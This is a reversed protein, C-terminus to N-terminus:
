ECGLTAIQMLEEADHLKAKFIENDLELEDVIRWNINKRKALTNQLKQKDAMEARLRFSQQALQNNLDSIEQRAVVLEEEKEMLDNNLHM